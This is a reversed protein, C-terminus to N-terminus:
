ETVSSVRVSQDDESDPLPTFVTREPSRLDIVGVAREFVNERAELDMLRVLSGATDNEALAIRLGNDLYLTWRRQGVRAAARVRSKLATHGEMHNVLDVAAKQAGEGTVILLDGYDSASLTSLAAGTMDFTWESM